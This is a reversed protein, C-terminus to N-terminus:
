ARFCVELPVHASSCLEDYAKCGFVYQLCDRFRNDCALCFILYFIPTCMGLFGYCYGIYVSIELVDFLSLAIMAFQWFWTLFGICAIRLPFTNYQKFDANLRCKTKHALAIAILVVFFVFYEVTIILSLVHYNEKRPVVCSRASFCMAFVTFLYFSITLCNKKERMKAFFDRKYIFFMWEIAILILILYNIFFLVDIITLLTCSTVTTDYSINYLFLQSLTLLALYSGNICCWHKLLNYHFCSNLNRFAVITCFLFLDFIFATIGLTIQINAYIQSSM